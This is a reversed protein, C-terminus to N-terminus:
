FWACGFRMLRPHLVRIQFCAPFRPRRRVRRVSPRLPKYENFNYNTRPFFMTPLSNVVLMGKLRIKIVQAILVVVLTLVFVFMYSLDLLHM